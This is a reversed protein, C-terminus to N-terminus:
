ACTALGDMMGVFSASRTRMAEFDMLSDLEGASTVRVKFLGARAYRYASVRGPDRLRLVPHTEREGDRGSPTSPLLLLLTSSRINAVM